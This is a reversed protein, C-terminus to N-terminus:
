CCGAPNCAACCKWLGHLNCYEYVGTVKEYPILAFVAEPKNGARLPRCQCGADTEVAIWEVRHAETMPHEVKGVKVTVTSGSVTYVPVHKEGGEDKTKVELCAMPHGCCVTEVDTDRVVAVIKGCTACKYFKM